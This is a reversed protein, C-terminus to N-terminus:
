TYVIKYLIIFLVHTRTALKFCSLLGKRLFGFLTCEPRTESCVDGYKAVYVIFTQVSALGSHLM